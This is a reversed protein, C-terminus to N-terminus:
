SRRGLHHAIASWRVAAWRPCASWQSSLSLTRQSADGASGKWGCMNGSRAAATSARPRVSCAGRIGAIPAQESTVSRALDSRSGFAAGFQATGGAAM